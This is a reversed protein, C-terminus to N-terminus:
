IGLTVFMATEYLTHVYVYRPRRLRFQDQVDDTYVIDLYEWGKKNVPGIKGIMLNSENPQWAFKFTVEWLDNAQRGRRQSTFGQFLVTGPDKGRFKDSNVCDKLAYFAVPNFQADTLYHTEQWEFKRVPVDIGNVREGDYGIANQLDPPNDAPIEETDWEPENPDAWEDEPKLILKLHKPTGYSVSSRSQTIHQTAGTTDYSIVPEPAEGNQSDGPKPTAYRVRAKWITDSVRESFEISKRILGREALPVASRVAALAAAEDAAGSVLYPVEVSSEDGSNDAWQESRGDHLEQVTTPM